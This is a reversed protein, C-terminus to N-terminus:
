LLEYKTGAYVSIKTKGCCLVTPVNEPKHLSVTTVNKPKHLSVTTEAPISHNRCPHCITEAPIPMTEAPVSFPKQM